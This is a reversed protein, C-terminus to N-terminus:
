TQLLGDINPYAALRNLHQQVDATDRPVGAAGLLALYPGAFVSRHRGFAGRTSRVKFCFALMTPISTERPLKPYRKPCGKECSPGNWLPQHHDVFVFCFASPAQVEVLTLSFNQINPLVKAFWMVGTEWYSCLWAPLKSGVTCFINARLITKPGVFFLSIRV